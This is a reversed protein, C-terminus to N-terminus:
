NSASPKEEIGNTQLTKEVEKDSETALKAKIKEKNIRRRAFVVIRFFHILSLAVLVVCSIWLTIEAAFLLGEFPISSSVTYYVGGSSCSQKDMTGPANLKAVNGCTVSHGITLVLTAIVAFVLCVISIGCIIVEFFSINWSRCIKLSLFLIFFILFCWIIPPSILIFYCISNSGFDITEGDTNDSAFLLCAESPSGNKDNVAATSTIMLIAICIFAVFSFAFVVVNVAIIFFDFCRGFTLKFGHLKKKEKKVEEVEEVAVIAKDETM